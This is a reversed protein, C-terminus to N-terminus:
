ASRYLHQGIISSHICTAHMINRFCPHKAGTQLDSSTCFVQASWLQVLTQPRQASVVPVIKGAKGVSLM